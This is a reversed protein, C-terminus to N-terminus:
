DDIKWLYEIRAWSQVPQGNETGPKFKCLSLARRAADDLRRFGSTREVKSDLATGDVSILFQLVVLGTEQARLSASPYEPKACNRADVVASTRAPGAVPAAVVPAPVPAEVAPKVTSVATITNTVPPPTDIRVEPPPIFPPPPAALKPPPPPPPKDVPPPKVEEIIKTELPQQVVEVIKRALGNILAYALAIHLVVVVAIGTVRRNSDHPEIYSM